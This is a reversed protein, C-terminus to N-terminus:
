SIVGRNTFLKEVKNAYNRNLMRFEQKHPSDMLSTVSPIEIEHDNMQQLQNEIENIASDDISGRHVLARLKGPKDDLEEAIEKARNLYKIANIHDLEYLSLKGKTYFIYQHVNEILKNNNRDLIQKKEDMSFTIDEIRSFVSKSTTKLIDLSISKAWTMYYSPFGEYGVIKRKISLSSDFCRKASSYDGLINTYNGLDHLISATKTAEVGTIVQKNDSINKLIQLNLNIADDLNGSYYKDEAETNNSEVDLLSQEFKLIDGNYTEKNEIL